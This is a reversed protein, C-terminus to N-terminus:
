GIINIDGLVGPVLVPVVVVVVVHLDEDHGVKIGFCVLLNANPEMDSAVGGRPLEGNCVIQVAEVAHETTVDVETGYGSQLGHQLVQLVQEPRDRDKVIICSEIALSPSPRGAHKHELLSIFHVEWVVKLNEQVVHSTRIIIPIIAAVRISRYHHLPKAVHVTTNDTAKMGVVDYEGAERHERESECTNSNDHITNDEYTRLRM